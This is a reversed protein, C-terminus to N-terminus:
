NVPYIESRKFWKEVPSNIYNVCNNNYDRQTCQSDNTQIKILNGKVSVVVGNITDDGEQVSKRFAEIKAIRLQALQKEDKAQQKKNEDRIKDSKLFIVNLYEKTESDVGLGSLGTRLDRGNRDICAPDFHYENTLKDIASIFLAFTKANVRVGVVGNSVGESNKFQDIKLPNKDDTKEISMPLLFWSFSSSETQWLPNQLRKVDCSLSKEGAFINVCLHMLFLFCFINKM